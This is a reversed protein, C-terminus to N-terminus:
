GVGQMMARISNRLDLLRMAVEDELQGPRLRFAAIGCSLGYCIGEPTRLLPVGASHVHSLWDGRSVCVGRALTDRVGELATQGYQSWDRPAAAALTDLLAAREAEPLMSLMARGVAIRILPASLGLDPRHEEIETGRSADLVLGRDGDMVVLTVAARLDDALAQMAPRAGRPFPLRALFPYAARLPGTWLAYKAQRPQYRLYGLRALTSSLRAVTPRTLGTRAALETNGLVPSDLDFAELVALGNALTSAFSPDERRAGTAAAAREVHVTRRAHEAEPRSERSPRGPKSPKVARM